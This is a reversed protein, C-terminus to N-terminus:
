EIRISSDVVITPAPLFTAILPTMYGLPYSLKVTIYEGSKRLTTTPTITVTLLAADGLHVYDKAFQTIAADAKGLGGLRVSEQAALNLHMYAYFIRGFDFIGCVVLLLLPLLLAFETLSQGKERLHRKM